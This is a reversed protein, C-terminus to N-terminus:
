AFAYEVRAYRMMFQPTTTEFMALSSRDHRGADRHARAPSSVPFLVAGASMYSPLMKGKRRHRWRNTVCVPVLSLIALARRPFQKQASRYHKPYISVIDGAAVYEPVAAQPWLSGWFSPSPPMVSTYLPQKTRWYRRFAADCWDGTCVLILTSIM